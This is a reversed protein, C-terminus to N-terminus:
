RIIELQYDVAAVCSTRLALAEIRAREQKSKVPGRLTVREGITIIKINKADASSEKDAIIGKRIAATTETEAKSNGQDMPSLADSDDRRNVKTNDAEATRAATAPDNVDVPDLAAAPERLPQASRVGVDDAPRSTPGSRDDGSLQCASASTILGAIFLQRISM